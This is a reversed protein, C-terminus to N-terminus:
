PRRRLTAAERALQEIATWDAAAVRDAPAVWSGGVCAVNALALYEPATERTIGGTPCFVMDPFPAALAKLMAVGGAERAPFLKLAAFGAARAAMLESPTMIGPLYPVGATRAASALEPAFGPSVGFRAGARAAEALEAPKTLTGAGVVADPVARRMASIADLACPTRLTVELVDLGGAVLARALPAAHEVRTVTLVPIVPSRAMIDRVALGRESM